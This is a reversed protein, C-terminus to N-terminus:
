NIAADADVWGRVRGESLEEPVLALDSLRKTLLFPLALSVVRPRVAWFSADPDEHSSHSFDAQSQVDRVSGVELLVGGM